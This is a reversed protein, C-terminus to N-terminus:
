IFYTQFSVKPLKARKYLIYPADPWTIDKVEITDDALYYLVKLLHMVGDCTTNRDDWYGTFCLVKGDM